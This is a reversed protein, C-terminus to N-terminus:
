AYSAPFAFGKQVLMETFLESKAEDIRNTEMRIFEIGKDTFRFADEPMKLDVRKSMSEMLFYLGTQPANIASPVSKFTFNTLQIDKPSVARGCITDPFREDATLQRVYLSPLLSDVQQQTYTNGKTDYRHLQKNEDLQTIVFDGLVSSYMTFPTKAPKLTLFAYCWPLQWVLLVAVTVYFFMKSFRIM